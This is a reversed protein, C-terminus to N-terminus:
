QTRLTVVPDVRAARRAPIWSAAAAALLLAVAVGAFTAPDTPGVGYLVAVLFRRLLFAGALGIVIGAATLTLGRRMFMALVHSPRAGLAIRVGIEPQRQQVLFALIGYIGVVGLLLGIAGFSLLLVTV